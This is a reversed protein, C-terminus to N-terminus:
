PMRGLVMRHTVALVAFAMVGVVIAVPVSGSVAGLRAVAVAAALHAALLLPVRAGEPALARTRVPLLAGAAPAALLLAIALGGLLAHERSSAGWAAAWALVLGGALFGTPGTRPRGELDAVGLVALGLGLPLLHSNEPVGLFLGAASALMAAPWYGAPSWRAAVPAALALAAGASALALAAWPVTGHFIFASALLGGLVAGVAVRGAASAPLLGSPENGM